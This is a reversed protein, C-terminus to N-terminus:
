SGAAFSAADNTLFYGPSGGASPALPKFTIPLLATAGRQYQTEVAETVTGRPFVWRMKKSGDNSELILAREDLAQTEDPLNYRYHGASVLVVSGGGFALPVTDENWQQLGFSVSAEQATMERRIPQRSQWAMYDQIEPSVSITAGDETIYGLGVFASNLAVSEDAPLPTGVPAVYVQGNSAVVIETSDNWGM